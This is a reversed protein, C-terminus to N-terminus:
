PADADPEGDAPIPRLERLLLATLEDALQDPARLTREINRVFLWLTEFGRREPDVGVLLLPTRPDIEDRVQRESPCAEVRVVVGDLLKASERPLAALVGRMAEELPPLHRTWPVPRTALDCERAKLFHLVAGVRDGDERTLLGLYYWADGETPLEAVARELMQRALELHGLDYAIRGLPLAFQAAMAEPHVLQDLRARAEEDRGLNLLTDMEILFAETLEEDDLAMQAALQCLRLTEDPDTGLHALLDAANLVPELYDEDLEMARRYESLAEDHDGDLGHIYGLLNHVDPSDEDFSLAQRAAVLAKTVDGRGLLEWARDLHASLQDM